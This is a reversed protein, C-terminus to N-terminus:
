TIKTTGKKIEQGNKGSYVEQYLVVREMKLICCEKCSRIGSTVPHWM